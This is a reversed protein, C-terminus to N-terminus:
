PLLILGEYDIDITSASTAQGTFVGLGSAHKFQGTGGVILFAGKSATFDTNFQGAFLEHVEDGSPGIKTLTGAFTGDAPNVYYDFSGTINGIVTGYGVVTGKIHLYGQSTVVTSTATSTLDGDFQRIHEARSQAPLAALVLLAGCCLASLRM